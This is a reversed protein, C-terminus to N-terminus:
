KELSKGDIRKHITNTSQIVFSEKALNKFDLNAFIEYFSICFKLEGESQMCNGMRLLLRIIIDEMIWILSELFKVTLQFQPTSVCVLNSHM